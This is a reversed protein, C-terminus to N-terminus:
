SMIAHKKAKQEIYFFLRKDDTWCGYIKKQKIKM